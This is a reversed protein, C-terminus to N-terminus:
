DHSKRGMGLSLLGQGHHHFCVRVAQEALRPLHGEEPEGQLVGQVDGVIKFKQRQLPIQQFLGLEDGLLEGDVGVVHQLERQLVHADLLVFEIPIQGELEGPARDGVGRLVHLMEGGKDVIM